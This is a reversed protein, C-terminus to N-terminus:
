VSLWEPSALLLTLAQQGTEAREIERLTNAHVIGSLRQTALKRADTDSSAMQSWQKAFDIRALLADAGMQALTVDPWGQPSRAWGPSAGMSETLKYIEAGNPPTVNLMRCASAILEDGYKARPMGEASVISECEILALALLKLDGSSKIYADTLRAMDKKNEASGGFHSLLKRSVFRATTPHRALFQLMAEGQAQGSQPFSQGLLVQTGPEHADDQFMFQSGRKLGWGTLGLALARVDKDTYAARDGLTHLELIERALNENLGTRVLAGFGSGVAKTSPGVSRFNDLYVMMAPHKVSALLLEEFRSLVYPRIADREYAGVITLLGNRQASVTLHNAWFWTLREVFPRTTTSAFRIRAELEATYYPMMVQRFQGDGDRAREAGNMSGGTVAPRQTGMANAAREAGEPSTTREGQAPPASQPSPKPADNGFVRRFLAGRDGGAAVDPRPMDKAPSGGMMGSRMLFNPFFSAAQESTPLKGFQQQILSAEIKASLQAVLWAKGEGQGVNLDSESCGLGFRHAALQKSLTM